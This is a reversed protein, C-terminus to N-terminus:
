NDALSAYRRRHKLLRIVGVEGKPCGERLSPVRPAAVAVALRFDEHAAAATELGMQPLRGRGRPLPLPPPFDGEGEGGAGLALLGTAVVLHIDIGIAGLNSLTHQTHRGIAAILLNGQSQWVEPLALRHM